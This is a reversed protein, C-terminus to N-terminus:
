AGDMKLALCNPLHTTVCEKAPKLKWSWRGATKMTWCRKHYRFSRVNPAKVCRRSCGVDGTRSVLFPGSLMTIRPLREFSTVVAAQGNLTQSYLSVNATGFERIMRKVECFEHDM